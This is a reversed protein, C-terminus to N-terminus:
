KTPHAVNLYSNFYFNLCSYVAYFILSCRSIKKIAGLFNYIILKGRRLSIDLFNWPDPGLAGARQRTCLEMVAQYNILKTNPCARLVLQHTMPSGPPDEGLGGNERKARRATTHLAGDSSQLQNIRHKTLYRLLESRETDEYEKAHYSNIQDRMNILIYNASLKRVQLTSYNRCYV